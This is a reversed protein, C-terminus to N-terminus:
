SQVTKLVTLPMACICYDANVTEHKGSKSNIYTVSVGNATKRIQRVDAGYRVVDGLRRGFAMPIQDMGGIPQFMTAQWDIMEEAMMGQWLNADLLAHMPLPDIAMPGQKGAGPPVKFGSRETGKFLFDPSLDGYQRLFELMREKDDRTIEQDLAGQNIAKALLESVHGRTDNIMQRQQVPRGGNLHDAQMLACRSTNVEVELPVGLEKCYGLMTTHVSPLRAPGVNQYNGEEFTCYQTFGDVFEVKTGQRVTWNRGGVRERAELLTCKYGLKGLEYASVLGAIGGGLIVVTTDNGPVKNLVTAESTAGMVPLLGLSQMLTFAAGFGGVQGVRTLFDRRTITM